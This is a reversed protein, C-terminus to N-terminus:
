LMNCCTIAYYVFCRLNGFGKFKESFILESAEQREFVVGWVYNAWILIWNLSSIKVVLFTINRSPRINFVWLVMHTFFHVPVGM